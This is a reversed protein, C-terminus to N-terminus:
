GARAAAELLWSGVEDDLDDISRIELHHIWQGPTPHAVEKFRASPDHRDLAISLVVEAAPSRLYRGPRWVFAFSRRRAFAVQSTTVRMSWTGADALLRHVAEVVEAALTCGAVFTELPVPDARSM